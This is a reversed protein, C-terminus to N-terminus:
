VSRVALNTGAWDGKYVRGFSGIKILKNTKMTIETLQIEPVAQQLGLLTSEYESAASTVKSIKSITSPGTAPSTQVEVVPIDSPFMDESTYEAALTSSSTEDSYIVAKSVSKVLNYTVM